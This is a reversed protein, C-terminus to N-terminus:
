HTLARFFNVQATSCEQLCVSLQIFLDKFTPDKFTPDKVTPDEILTMFPGIPHTLM